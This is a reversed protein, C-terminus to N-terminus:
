EAYAMISTLMVAVEETLPTGTFALVNGSGDVYAIGSLSPEEVTFAACPLDNLVRYVTTIGSANYFDITQELTTLSLNHGYTSQSRCAFCLSDVTNSFFCALSVHVVVVERTERYTFCLSGSARASSFDTM